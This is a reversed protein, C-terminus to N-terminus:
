GASSLDYKKIVADEIGWWNYFFDLAYIGKLYENPDKDWVSTTYTLFQDENMRSFATVIQPHQEDWILIVYAMELPSTDQVTGYVAMYQYFEALTHGELSDTVVYPRQFCATHRYAAPLGYTALQEEIREANEFLLFIVSRPKLDDIYPFDDRDTVGPYGESRATDVIELHVASQERAIALLAAEQPSMANQEEALCFLGFLLLLSLICIKGAYSHDKM